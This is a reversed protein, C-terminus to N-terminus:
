EVNRNWICLSPELPKDKCKSVLVVRSALDFGWSGVESDWIPKNSSCFMYGDPQMVFWNYGAESLDNKKEIIVNLATPNGDSLSSVVEDNTMVGLFKNSLYESLGIGALIHKGLYVDYSVLSKFSEGGNYFKISHRRNTVVYYQPEKYWLRILADQGFEKIFKELKM